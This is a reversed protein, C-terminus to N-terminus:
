RLDCMNVDKYAVTGRGDFPQSGDAGDRGIRFIM